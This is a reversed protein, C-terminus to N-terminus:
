IQIVRNGVLEVDRRDKKGTQTLIKLQRGHDELVKDLQERPVGDLSVNGRHREEGQRHTKAQESLILAENRLQDVQGLLTKLRQLSRFEDPQFPKNLSRAIEVKTMVQLLRRRLAAFKQEKEILDQRTKSERERIFDLSRQVSKAHAANEQAREQQWLVRAQLSSAGVLPFPEYENPEPNNVVALKWERGCVQQPRPPEFIQHQGGALYRM